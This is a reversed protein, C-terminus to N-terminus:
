PGTPHRLKQLDVVCQRPRTEDKNQPQFSGTPLPAVGWGGLGGWGLGVGCKNWLSRVPAVGQADQGDELGPDVNVTDLEGGCRPEKMELFAVMFVVVVMVVLVVVCM